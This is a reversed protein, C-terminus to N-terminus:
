RRSRGTGKVAFASVSGGGAENVAYLYKGSPHLALFSPSKSEAALQPESLKGTESDITMRYIGQSGGPKTYTGVYFPVEAAHMMALSSSFLLTALTKM